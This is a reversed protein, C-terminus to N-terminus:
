RPKSPSAGRGAVAPDKALLKRIEAQFVGLGQAGIVRNGEVWDGSPKGVVFTPTGTIQVAGADRVSADIAALHRTSGLCEAFAPADLGAAQAYDPLNKEELKRANAFLVHHMEWFRDQEAACRAAQAAKRANKHFGLPMDRIVWRVKGTDIFQEKLKPFTNQVFKLCYPCQYDTFEVVTVPADDSGLTVGDKIAVKATKPVPPRGRAQAVGKKDISELLKRIGKLEQLIADAQDRTIAAAQDGAVSQACVAPVWIASALALFLGAVGVTLPHRPNSFTLDWRTM